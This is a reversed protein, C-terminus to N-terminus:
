PSFRADVDAAASALDLLRDVLERNSVGDAEWLRPFMSNPTFGPITNIENLYLDGRSDLFFDVRAMGRCGIATYAQRAYRDIMAAIEPDVDAPIVLESDDLYKAEFDYTEHSPLIEGPPTVDISENGLVGVELERPRELGQEVIAVRDYRFAEALGDALQDRHRVLTIGISSGQRAPKTFIPFSLASEIEDLVTSRETEYRDRRIPLYPVQPLGRAKFAQKMARKDVGVSSSVVDAGVYPVGMSALLGQITGDEGYPGHLVPFALDIGAVTTAVDDDFRVLTPGSRGLVLAVTQQNTGDVEPLARGAPTVIEGDTLVWRGERTIGVPIVDYRDRDIASLVLRASLCSIEHESSRGGFLILVTQRDTM